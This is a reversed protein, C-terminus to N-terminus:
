TADAPGDDAGDSVQHGHHHPCPQREMHPATVMSSQLGWLKHPNEAKDGDGQDFTLLKM